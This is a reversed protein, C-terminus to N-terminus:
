RVLRLRAGALLEQASRRDNRKTMRISSASCSRRQYESRPREVANASKSADGIASAGIWATADRPREGRIGPTKSPRSVHEMARQRCADDQEAQRDQQESGGCAMRRLIAESEDDAVAGVGLDRRKGIRRVVRAVEGLRKLAESEVDRGHGVGLEIVESAGEDI